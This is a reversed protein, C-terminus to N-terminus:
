KPQERQIRYMKGRLGCKNLTAKSGLMIVAAIVMLLVIQFFMKWNMNVEQKKKLAKLKGRHAQKKERLLRSINKQRRTIKERPM